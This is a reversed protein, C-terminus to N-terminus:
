VAVTTGMATDNRILSNDQMVWFGDGSGVRKEMNDDDSDIINETFNDDAYTLQWGDATRTAAASLFITRCYNKKSLM